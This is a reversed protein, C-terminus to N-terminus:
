AHFRHHFLICWEFHVSIWTQGYVQHTKTEMNAYDSSPASYKTPSTKGKSNSFSSFMASIQQPKSQNISQNKSQNMSKSQNMRQNPNISRDIQFSQNISQPLLVHLFFEIWFLWTLHQPAVVLNLKQQPTASPPIPPVWNCYQCMRSWIKKELCVPRFRETRRGFRVRFLKECM